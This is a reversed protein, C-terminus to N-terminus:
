EWRDVPRELVERMVILRRLTAPDRLAAALDAPATDRKASPAGGTAADGSALPSVRHGLDHAFAGDVHEAVDDGADGLPQLQRDSLRPAPGPLPPPVRSTTAAPAAPVRAPRPTAPRKEQRRPAAAPERPARSQRLFEAIQRELDVRPDNPPEPRPPAVPGVRPRGADGAVRRVLNVLQSIVWFVVFLLPLVAELWDFGAALLPVPGPLHM